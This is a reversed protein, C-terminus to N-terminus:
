QKSTRRTQEQAPKEQGLLVVAGLVLVFGIVRVVTLPEGFFCVSYVTAAIPELVSLSAATGVPLNRLGSSYLFYPFAFTLLGMGLMLLSVHPENRGAIQFIEWPKCVILASIAMFLYSYVTSTLPQVNRRMAYKMLISYASYSVGAMLGMFIGMTDYKMGDLLGSVLACGGLMLAVAIGRQWTLKEKMVLVCYAMVFLPSTYMLMVSTSVSTLQMSSYYCFAAFFMGIGAGIVLLLERWGIRFLKKDRILLYIAVFVASVTGRIATMHLSNLGYPALVQVFIGSSGWLLCAFIISIFAKKKM